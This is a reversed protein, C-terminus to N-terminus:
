RFVLGIGLRVNQLTMGDLRVPNYDMQVVRFDIHFSSHSNEDSFSEFDAFDNEVLGNSYGAFVEVMKYDDNKQGHAFVFTVLTLLFLM